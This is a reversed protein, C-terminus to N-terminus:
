KESITKRSFRILLSCYDMHRTRLTKDFDDVNTFNVLRTKFDIAVSGLQLNFSRKSYGHTIADLCSTHIKNKKDSTNINDARTIETYHTQSYRNSM